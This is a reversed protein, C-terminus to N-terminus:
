TMEGWAQEVGLRQAAVTLLEPVAQLYWYTSAPHSHGLYAALAPLKAAVDVGDRYWGLLTNIAFSHRLGHLRPRCSLSRPQIGVENALDVFVKRVVPYLLPTGAASVFFSAAKPKPCLRDREQTYTALADSTSPHLPLLRSKNFKSQRVNLLRHGSWGQM